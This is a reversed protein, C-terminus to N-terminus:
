GAGQTRKRGHPSWAALILYTVGTFTECTCHPTRGTTKRKLLQSCAANERKLKDHAPLAVASAALSDHLSDYWEARM